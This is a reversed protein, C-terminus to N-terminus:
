IILRSDRSCEQAEVPDKMKVTRLYHGTNEPGSHTVDDPQVPQAHKAALLEGGEDAAGLVLDVDGVELNDELGKM